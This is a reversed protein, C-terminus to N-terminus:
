ELVSLSSYKVHSVRINSIFSQNLDLMGPSSASHTEPKRVKSRSRTSHVPLALCCHSSKLRTCQTTLVPWWSGIGPDGARQNTPLNWSAATPCCMSPFPPKHVFQLPLHFFIQTCLINSCECQGLRDCTSVVTQRSQSKLTAPIRCFFKQERCDCYRLSAGNKKVEEFQESGLPYARSEIRTCDSM